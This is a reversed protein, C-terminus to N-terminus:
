EGSGVISVGAPCRGRPRGVLGVGGAGASFLASGEGGKGGPEVCRAGEGHSECRGWPPVGRPQGHPIPARGGGEQEVVGPQWVGMRDWGVGECGEQAVGVLRVREQIRGAYGKEAAVAADAGVPLEKVVLRGAVNKEM